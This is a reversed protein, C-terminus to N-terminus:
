MASRVSLVVLLLMWLPIAVRLCLLAQGALRYKELGLKAMTYNFDLVNRIVDRETARNLSSGYASESEAAINQFFLPNTERMPTPLTYCRYAIRIGLLTIWCMAFALFLTLGPGIGPRVFQDLPMILFLTTSVLLGGAAIVFSAKRDALGPQENMPTFAAFRVAGLSPKESDSLRADLPEDSTSLRLHSMTCDANEM